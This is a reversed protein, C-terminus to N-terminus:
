FAIGVAALLIEACKSRRCGWFLGASSYGLNLLSLWVSHFPSNLSSSNSSMLGIYMLRSYCSSSYLVLHTQLTQLYFTRIVLLPCSLHSIMAKNWILAFVENRM